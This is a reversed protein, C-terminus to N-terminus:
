NKAPTLRRGIIFKFVQQNSGPTLGFLFGTQLEWDPSSYLDFMPGMLHEQNRLSNIKKFTGLDSYYELGIGFKNHVTYVTKFQPGVGFFKDPGSLVFAVNPNLSFYFNGLKKDIVPRLEGDMVFDATRDPRIFGLELSLSAGFNLHWSEPFTFRPRIHNGLYDYGGTPSFGTFTYFGIEFNKGLGRTIELTEFTWRASRPQALDKSGNFTHNQHLEVLTVKAPTISSAYVQIENDAQARSKFSLCCCFLVPSIIKRLNFLCVDLFPM